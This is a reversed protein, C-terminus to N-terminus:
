SNIWLTIHHALKDEEKLPIVEQPRAKVEFKSVNRAMCIFKLFNNIKAILVIIWM